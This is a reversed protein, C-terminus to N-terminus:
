SRRVKSWVNNRHIYVKHTCACDCMSTLVLISCCCVCFYSRDKKNYNRVNVDTTMQTEITSATVSAATQDLMGLMVIVDEKVAAGFVKLM